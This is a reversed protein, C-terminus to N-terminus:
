GRLRAVALEIATNIAHTSVQISADLAKSEIEKFAAARKGPGNVGALSEAHNVADVAIDKINEITEGTIGSFVEGFWGFFSEFINM